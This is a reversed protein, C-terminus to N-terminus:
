LNEMNIEVVEGFPYEYYRSQPRSLGWIVPVSPEVDASVDCYGDTFYVFAIVDDTDDTEDNFM